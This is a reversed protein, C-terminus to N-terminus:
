IDGIVEERNGEIKKVIGFFELDPFLNLEDLCDTTTASLLAGRGRQM